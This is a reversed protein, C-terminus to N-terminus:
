LGTVSSTEDTEFDKAHETTLNNVSMTVVSNNVAGAVKVKESAIELTTNNLEVTPKSNKAAFFAGVWKKDGLDKLTSYAQQSLTADNAVFTPEGSAFVVAASLITSFDTRYMYVTDLDYAYGLPYDTSYSGGNLTLKGNGNLVAIPTNSSKITTNNVVIEGNDYIASSLYFAYNNVTGGNVTIKANNAVFGRDSNYEADYNGDEGLKIEGNEVTIEGSESATYGASYSGAINIVNEKANIVGKDVAVMANTGNSTIEFNTNTVTARSNEGAVVVLSNDGYLGRDETEGYNEASGSKKIKAGDITLSGGNLVLFLIEDDQESSFEGGSVNVDVGDIIYKANYVHEMNNVVATVEGSGAEGLNNGGFWANWNLAFVAGLACILAIVFVGIVIKLHSRSKEM